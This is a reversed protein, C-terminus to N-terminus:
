VAHSLRAAPRPRHTQEAAAHDAPAPRGAEEQVADVHPQEVGVREGGLLNVGHERVGAPRPRPERERGQGALAPELEDGRRLVGDRADLEDLLVGGLPLLELALQQGAGPPRGVGVRHEARRGGAQARREQLGVHRVGLPHGDAM